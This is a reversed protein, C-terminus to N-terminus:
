CEELNYAKKMEAMFDLETGISDFVRMAIKNLEWNHFRVGKYKTVPSTKGDYDIGYFKMLVGVAALITEQNKSGENLAQVMQQWESIETPFDEQGTLYDPNIGYHRKFFSLTEAAPTTKGNVNKSFAQVTMDLMEAIDKQVTKKLKHKPPQASWYPTGDSHTFYEGQYGSPLNELKLINKFRENIIKIEKM